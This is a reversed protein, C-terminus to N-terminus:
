KNQEEERKQLLRKLVDDSEGPTASPPAIEEGYVNVRGALPQFNTSHSYALSVEFPLNKTLGKLGPLDMLHAVFSESRSVLPQASILTQAERGYGKLDSAKTQSASQRSAEALSYQARGLDSIASQPIMASAIRTM